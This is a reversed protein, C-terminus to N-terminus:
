YDCWDMDDIEIQKLNLLTKFNEVNEFLNRIKGLDCISTQDSLIESVSSWKYNEAASCIKHRVPNNNIYLILNKLYKDEIVLKKEIGREFLAGTRSYKYNYWKAYADFLFQLMSLPKPKVAYKIDLDGQHFIQWKITSDEANRNRSDLFGIENLEKVRICFHYHNRMLCWSFTNIVPSAYIKYLHLFHSYDGENRFLTEKNNGRNFIHYYNGHELPITM